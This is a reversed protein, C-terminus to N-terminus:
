FHRSIGFLFVFNHNSSATGRGAPTLFNRCEAKFGTRDGFRILLGGGVPVTWTHQNAFVLTEPSSASPRYDNRSAYGFGALPYVSFRDNSLPIQLRLTPTFFWASRSYTRESSPSVSEGFAFVQATELWLSGAKTQKFQYGYIIGMSIGGSSELNVPLGPATPRSQPSFGFLVNIDMNQIDQGSLCSLGLLSLCFLLRPM